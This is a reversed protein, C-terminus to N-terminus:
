IQNVFIIKLSTDEIKLLANSGGGGGGLLLSDM